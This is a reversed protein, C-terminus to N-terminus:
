HLCTPTGLLGIIGFLQISAVIDDVIISNYSEQSTLFFERFFISPITDRCLSSLHGGISKTNEIM